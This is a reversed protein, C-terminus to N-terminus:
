NIAVQRAMTQGVSASGGAMAMFIPANGLPNIIPLLTLPVLVVSQMILVIFQM